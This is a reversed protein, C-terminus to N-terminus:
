FRGRSGGHRRGSSSRHTSSGGSSTTQKRVRTTRSYLYVDRQNRLYYSGQQVYDVAGSQPRVTKMGSRMIWITIGGAAAGIALAVFIDFATDFATRTKDIPKGNKYAAFYEDLLDLYAAFGEYYDGDSLYDTVEDMIQDQGYDTLADIAEGCTSIAWEREDMSLMLLVGSHESGIGYGTYDFYDDAYNTIDEGYLTDVTLIVVDIDYKDALAKAKNNLTVEESSSLLNANDVIKPPDGDYIPGAIVTIALAPVTLSLALLCILLLSTLKKM